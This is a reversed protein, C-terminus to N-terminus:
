GSIDELKFLIHTQKKGALTQTKYEEGRALIFTFDPYMHAVMKVKSIGAAAFRTSGKVEHYEIYGDQTVVMFDPEYRIGTGTRLSGPKLYYARIERKGHLDDLHSLYALEYKSDIHKPLEPKKRAKATRNTKEVGKVGKFRRPFAM